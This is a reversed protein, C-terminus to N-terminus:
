RIGEMGLFPFTLPILCVYLFLALRKMRHKIMWRLVPKTFEPARAYIPTIKALTEALEKHPHKLISEHHYGSIGQRVDDCALCRGAAHLIALGQGSEGIVVSAQASVRTRIRAGSLL